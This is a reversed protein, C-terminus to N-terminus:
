SDGRGEELVAGSNRTIQDDRIAKGVWMYSEELATLALAKARGCDFENIHREINIFLRKFEAQLAKAEEDYAIYDFRSM